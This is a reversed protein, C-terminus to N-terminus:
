KHYLRLIQKFITKSKFMIERFYKIILREVQFICQIYNLQALKYKLCLESNPALLWFVHIREKLVPYSYFITMLEIYSGKWKVNKERVQINGATTKPHAM